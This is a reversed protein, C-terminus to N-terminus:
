NRNSKTDPDGGGKAKPAPAGKDTTTPAIPGGSKLEFNKSNSGSKIEVSLETKTNYNIPILQKKEEVTTGTDNTSPLQKGTKKMWNIEVKFEGTPLSDFSYKGGEIEKSVRGGTAGTSPVLTITGGDVPQGDLTVSGDLHGGGGCGPLSLIASFLVACILFFRFSSKM